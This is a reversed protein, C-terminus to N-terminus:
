RTYRPSVLRGESATERGLPRFQCVDFEIYHRSTNM